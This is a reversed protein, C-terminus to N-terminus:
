PRSKIKQLLDEVGPNGAKDQQAPPAAAGAPAPAASAPSLSALQEQVKAREPYNPNTALLKEWAKRAEAANNKGNLYVVGLNYLTQPHTPNVELSKQFETIAEDAQGLNWYSTGRDTHVNANNPDLDLARGYYDIAQRYRGNDYNLNGMQILANVNRPNAQLAANLEAEEQLFGSQGAAQAATAPPPSSSPQQGYYYGIGLGAALCVAGVLVLNAPSAKVAPRSAVKPQNGM